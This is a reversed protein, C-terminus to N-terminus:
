AEASIFSALNPNDRFVSFLGSELQSIKNHDLALELRYNLAEIIEHLLVSKQHEITQRKTDVVIACEGPVHSGFNDNGYQRSDCFSVTYDIGLIRLKNM